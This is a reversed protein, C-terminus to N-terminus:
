SYKLHHQFKTKYSTHLQTSGIVLLIVIMFVLAENVLDDEAEPLGTGCYVRGLYCKKKQGLM